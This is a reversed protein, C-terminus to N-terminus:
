KQGRKAKVFAKFNEIEKWEEDTFKEGEYHAAITGTKNTSETSMQNLQDFTIDLANCIKLVNNVSSNGVGRELISRLTNYPIGAKKSFDMLNGQKTILGKLIAAMKM